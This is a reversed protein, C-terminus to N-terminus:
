MAIHAWVDNSQQNISVFTYPVLKTSIRFEGCFIRPYASTRKCRNHLVPCVSLRVSPCVGSWSACCVCRLLYRKRVVDEIHQHAWYFVPIGHDYVLHLFWGLRHRLRALYLQPVRVVSRLPPDIHQFVEELVDDDCSLADELEVQCVM